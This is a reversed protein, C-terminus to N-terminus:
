GELAKDIVIKRVEALPTIKPESLNTSALIQNRSLFRMKEQNKLKDAKTYIQLISQDGRIFGKLFDAVSKDNELDTHRSDILHLFLKISNRQSLFEVLNKDWERKQGKSVKAYGFGPLDVIKFALTKSEDIYEAGFFNILQTKGPTSSSKALGNKGLFLNIFSSKGVNSRGLIAIEICDASPCELLKSASTIFRPSLIKNAM